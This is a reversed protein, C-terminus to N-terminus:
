KNSGWQNLGVVLVVMAAVSLLGGVVLVAALTVGIISWGSRARRPPRPPQWSPPGPPINREM